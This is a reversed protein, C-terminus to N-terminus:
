AQYCNAISIFVELLRRRRAALSEIGKPQPLHELCACHGEKSSYCVVRKRIYGLSEANKLETTLAPFDHLMMDSKGHTVVFDYYYCIVTFLLFTFAVTLM